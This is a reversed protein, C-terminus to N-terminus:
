KSFLVPIQYSEDNAPLGSPNDKAIVIFGNKASATFTLTATFEVPNGRQWSGPKLEKAQGQVIVEKKEDLIKIPM